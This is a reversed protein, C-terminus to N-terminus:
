QHSDLNVSTTSASNVVPVAVAEVPVAAYIADTEPETPQYSTSAGRDILVVRVSNLFEDFTLRPVGVLYVLLSKLDFYADFASYMATTGKSSQSKQIILSRLSTDSTDAPRVGNPKGEQTLETLSGLIRAGRVTLHYEDFEDGAWWETPVFSEWAVPDWEVWDGSAFFPIYEGSHKPLYRHRAPLNQWELDRIAQIVAHDEDETRLSTVRLIFDM